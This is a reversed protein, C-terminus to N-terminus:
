KHKGKKRFLTKSKIYNITKLEIRTIDTKHLM